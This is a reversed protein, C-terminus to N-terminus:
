DYYYKHEKRHCNSCLVECKNIENFIEEYSYNFKIMNAITDIKNDPELHHFELCIPDDEDCRNCGVDHKYKNIDERILKKDLYPDVKVVIFDKVEKKYAKLCKRCWDDYGDKSCYVRNFANIGKLKKCQTCTKNYM